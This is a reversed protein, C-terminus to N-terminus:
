KIHNQENARCDPPRKRTELMPEITSDLLPGATGDLVSTVTKEQECPKARKIVPEIEFSSSRLRNGRVSYKTDIVASMAAACAM